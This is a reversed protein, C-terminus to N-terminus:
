QEEENKEVFFGGAGGMSSDPTSRRIYTYSLVALILVMAPIIFASAGFIALCLVSGAVGTLAAGHSKQSKWQDAFIVVFLATLAFDLGKTDFTILSGIVVGLCSGLVWYSHDLLAVWLYVRNPNLEKPVETECLVSFTEDTMAFILYPKGRKMDRLRGLMSVGYFLHRANIMLGMLFVYLPNVMGLLLTVGLYQLSGAFVVLSTFFVWVIGYGNVKMLIGYAAGLFLYGALVPVTRPFAYVFESRKEKM